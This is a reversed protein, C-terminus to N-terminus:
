LCIPNLRGAIEAIRGDVGRSLVISYWESCPGAHRKWVLTVSEPSSTTIQFGGRTIQSTADSADSGIPFTKAVFDSFAREADEYLHSSHSRKLEYDSMFTPYPDAHTLGYLLALWAGYCAFVVALGVLVVVILFRRMGDGENM